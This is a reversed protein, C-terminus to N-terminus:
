LKAVRIPRGDSIESRVKDNADEEMEPFFDALDNKIDNYVECVDNNYIVRKM